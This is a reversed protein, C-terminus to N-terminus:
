PKRLLKDYRLNPIAPEIERSGDCNVARVETQNEGEVLIIEFDRVVTNGTRRSEGPALV